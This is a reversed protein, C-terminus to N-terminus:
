PREYIVTLDAAIRRLLGAASAGSAADLMRREAVSVPRGAAQELEDFIDLAAFGQPMADLDFDLILDVDSRPGHGGRAVSGYLEARRVEPHRELVAVIRSVIARADM